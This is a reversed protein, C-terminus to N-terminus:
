HDGFDTNIYAHLIDQCKHSSLICDIMIFSKYALM